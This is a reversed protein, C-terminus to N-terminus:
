FINLIRNIEVHCTKDSHTISSIIFIELISTACQPPRPAILFNFSFYVISIKFFVKRLCLNSRRHFLYVFPIYESNALKLLYVVAM